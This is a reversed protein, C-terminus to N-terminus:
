DYSRPRQWVGPQTEVSEQARTGEWDFERLVHTALQRLGEWAPRHLVEDNGCELDFKEMAQIGADIRDLAERQAECLTAKKRAYSRAHLFEELLDCAICGPGNARLQEDPQAALIALADRLLPQWIEREISM